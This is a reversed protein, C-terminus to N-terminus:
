RLRGAGFAVPRSLRCHARSKADHGDGSKIRPNGRGDVRDPADLARFNAVSAFFGQMEPSKRRARWNGSENQPAAAHIAPVLGAM